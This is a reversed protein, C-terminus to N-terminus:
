GIMCNNVWEIFNETSDGVSEAKEHGVGWVMEFDVDKVNKYQSLSLGLNIETTVSTDSQWAGTRIRFYPAVNSTNYGKSVPLLYYLPSYMNIRDEVTNGLFDIKSLDSSFDNEYETDKIAEGLYKDFHSGQGDGYGFLINEGQTKNLDDFAGLNKSAVKVNKSFEYLNTITATNTKEDYKVWEVNQNLAAIYDKVTEYTGSLSLGEMNNRQINDIEEIPIESNEKNNEDDRNNRKSMDVNEREDKIQGRMNFNGRSNKYEYPFTTTQLFSNLSNEVALKVYSYYSGKNCMEDDYDLTLYNGEFDKLQLNNIYDVYQRALNKSIIEEEETLDSRSIGMNWEYAMDASDLSTIPCWCMSGFVADSVNKVAGIDDLYEDYLVSDGTIGMLASQAGGGSMGFTFIKKIDGPIVTENYKIYRVAAKLDVVGLPAGHERGRCGAYVYIFGENTYEKAESSYETLAKMASYGPTEVPMVIPATIADYNKVSKTDDIVCTYFDNENKESSFYEGPVFISLTQYDTERKNTCYDIGIQYYVNDDVNYLWKTMDVKEPYIFSKTDEAIREVITENNITTTEVIIEEKECAAFFLAVFLLVLFKKIMIKKM